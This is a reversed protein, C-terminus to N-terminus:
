GHIFEHFPAYYADYGDAEGGQPNMREDGSFVFLQGFRGGALAAPAVLQQVHFADDHTRLVERVAEVDAAAEDGVLLHLERELRRSFDGVDIKGLSGVHPGALQQGLYVVCRQLRLQAPEFRLLLQHLVAQVTRARKQLLFGDAFLGKLFGLGVQGRKAGVNLQHLRVDGLRLQASGEVADDTQALDARTGVGRGGGGDGREGLGM